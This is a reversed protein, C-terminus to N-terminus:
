SWTTVEGREEALDRSTVVHVGAEKMESVAREVDGPALDIGRCADIVVFTELGLRRADLASYRICYDTALGALYITDVGEESLYDALCTSRRHLNDFFASYSDVTRDVGKHFERRIRTTDLGPVFGAGHSGQVCHVPWLTQRAGGLKIVDGPRKGPHNAAFSAHDPPHWDRAAVVLNFDGRALANAIPVVEDGTPVPLAGGPMFDNQLDVLILARKM